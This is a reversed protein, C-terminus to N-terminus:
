GRDWLNILSTNKSNIVQLAQMSELVKLMFPIFLLTVICPTHTVNVYCMAACEGLLGYIGLLTRCIMESKGCEM